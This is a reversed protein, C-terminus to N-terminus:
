TNRGKYYEADHIRRSTAYGEVLKKVIDRVASKSIYLSCNDCPCITMNEEYTCTPSLMDGFFYCDRKHNM